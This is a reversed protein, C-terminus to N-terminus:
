KAQRLFLFIALTRTRKVYSALGAWSPAMWIRFECIWNPSGKLPPTKLHPNRLGCRSGAERIQIAGDWSTMLLLTRMSYKSKIATLPSNSELALVRGHVRMSGNNCIPAYGVILSQTDALATALLGAIQDAGRARLFEITEPRIYFNTDTPSEQELYRKLEQVRTNSLPAIIEGTSLNVLQLTQDDAM